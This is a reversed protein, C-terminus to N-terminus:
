NHNEGEPNKEILSLQKAISKPLDSPTVGYASYEKALSDGAVGHLYVSVTAAIQDSMNKQACMAGILGALVDGSGAKALASSGSANIYVSEGDTIITSAGKLVVVVGNEKAFKEAKELRHLQVSAVEDGTLRAFELPHPTILVRRKSNRIALIGREGIESLANIADADLILTGGESSLLALTLRLLGHTNDSGSGILTTTHKESLQCVERIGEDGIDCIPAVEKYVIEPYKPSLEGILSGSGVFTVLGVGGRLAAESSLHAAGRYKDSGSIILLKGFTGKNSNKERPPLAKRVFESDVMHYKFQFNKNIEEEPLGLSDYIIEGVYARAPYSIIGPKIFTLAVTAEVSIVFDSVSGDDSNIGLPVDIAIKHTEVAERVTIALPRISEPMEGVFGTGFVADIICDANKIESHIKDTPEYNELKGGRKKYLELFYRGAENKQGKGLVDFVTLDYEEMLSVAAAYGDGGNNGKGALVIVTSGPSVRSRVTDAVAEGSKRMLEKVSLNLKEASFSDIESIMSSVALKM